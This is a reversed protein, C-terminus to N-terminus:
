EEEEEEERKGKSLVEPETIEVAESAAEEAESARTTIMSFVYEEPRGQYEVGAIVPLDAITIPNELSLNSIDVEISAPIDAPLAKIEVTDMAQLVMVGTVLAASKGIAVVPVHVSQKETMSVAYFDAHLYAHTVPHRQVERILVNHQSGDGVNVEVLQSFGGSHLIRELNRATVQLNTPNQEKGYVVVPVLGQVRLQRVKRGTLTRPQADLKLNAM